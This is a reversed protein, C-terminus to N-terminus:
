GKRVQLSVASVDELRIHADFFEKGRIPGIVVWHESMSAIQGRFSQGGRLILEVETKSESAQSLLEQIGANAFM